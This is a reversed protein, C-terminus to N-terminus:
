SYEGNEQKKYGELPYQFSHCVKLLLASAMCCANAISRAIAVFLFSLEVSASSIIASAFDSLFSETGSGGFSGWVQM